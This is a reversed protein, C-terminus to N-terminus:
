LYWLCRFLCSVPALNPTEPDFIYKQDIHNPVVVTAADDRPFSPSHFSIKLRSGCTAHWGVWTDVYLRSQNVIPM